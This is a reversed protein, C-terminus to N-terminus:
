REDFDADAVAALVDPTGLERLRIASGDPFRACEDGDVYGLRVRDATAEELLADVLDAGPALADLFRLAATM